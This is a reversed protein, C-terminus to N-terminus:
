GPNDAAWHILEVIAGPNSLHVNHGTRGLSEVRMASARPLENRLYEITGDQPCVPDWAGHVIGISCSVEGLLERMSVNEVTLALLELNAADWADPIVPALAGIARRLWQADNMQPDCAGAVLVVGKILEPFEAAARLVVPGGYSHGVLLTGPTLLPELSRAHARLETEPERTSNGYGLRDVVVVEFSELEKQYRDLLRNWSGADAPAGHVFILRTRDAGAENPNVIRYALRRGDRLTVFCDTESEASSVAVFVVTYAGLLAILSIGILRGLHIRRQKRRIRM